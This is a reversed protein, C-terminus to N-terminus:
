MVINSCDGDFELEGGGHRVNILGTGARGLESIFLAWNRRRRELSVPAELLPLPLGLGEEAEPLVVRPEFRVEKTGM